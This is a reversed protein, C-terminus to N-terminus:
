VARGAPLGRPATSGEGAWPGVWHGKERAKRYLVDAGAVQGRGGMVKIISIM